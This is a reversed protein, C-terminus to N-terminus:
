PRRSGAPNQIRSIPVAIRRHPHAPGTHAAVAPPAFPIGNFTAAPSSPAEPTRPRPPLRGNGQRARKNQPRPRSFALGLSLGLAEANLLTPSLRRMKAGAATPAPLSPPCHSSTVTLKVVVNPRSGESNYRRRGPKSSRMAEDWVSIFVRQSAPAQNRSTRQLAGLYYTNGQGM